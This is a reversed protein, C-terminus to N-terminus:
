VVRGGLLVLGLGLGGRRLRVSGMESGRGSVFGISMGSLIEGGDVMSGVGVLVM